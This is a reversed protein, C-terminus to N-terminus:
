LPGIGDMMMVITMAVCQLPWIYRKAMVIAIVAATLKGDDNHDWTVFEDYCHGYAM